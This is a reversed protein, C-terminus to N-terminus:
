CWISWLRGPRRGRRLPHASIAGPRKVPPPRCSRVGIQELTKRIQSRAVSSDDVFLVTKQHISPQATIRAYTGDQHAPQLDMLIKEVDPILITQGRDDVTVGTIMGQSQARIVAPPTKIETWSTRMIRDVDTVYFAQVSNSYHTLVLFGKSGATEAASLKLCAHLNVVAISNSRITVLGLIRPDTEPLHTITPMTVIEQVKFVNLGFTEKTGLHFLLLEIQNTGALNTRADIERLMTTM